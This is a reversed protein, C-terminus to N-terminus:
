IGKEMIVPAVERIIGEKEYIPRVMQKLYPLKASFILSGLICSIGGLMLTNPAGISSALSGALLSGFPVMGIFAMTYLSMVRGRKDDEVIVQLITNITKMADLLVIKCPM